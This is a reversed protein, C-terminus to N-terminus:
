NAAAAMYAPLWAEHARRLEAVPIDILATVKLDEGGVQGIVAIEV